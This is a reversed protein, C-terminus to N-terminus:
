INTTSGTQRNTRRRQEDITRATVNEIVSTDGEVIVEVTPNTSANVEVQGRDTVQAAPVVREGEHLRAMGGEAILGGSQLLNGEGPIGGGPLSRGNGININIHKGPDLSELMDIIASRIGDAIANGLDTALDAIVQAGENIWQIVGDIGDKVLDILMKAFDLQFNFITSAVDTTFDAVFEAGPGTIWDITADLGDKLIQIVDFSFDGFEFLMDELNGLAAGFDGQILNMVAKAGNALSDILLDALESTLDVSTEIIPVVVGDVADWADKLATGASDAYGSLANLTEASESLVPGFHKSITDAVQNILPSIIEEFAFRIVPLVMTEIFNVFGTLAGRVANAYQEFERRNDTFIRVISEMGPAFSQAITQGTDEFAGGLAGVDDAVPEVFEAFDSLGGSGGFDFIDGLSQEGQAVENLGIIAEQVGNLTEGTTEGWSEVDGGLGLIDKISDLFLSITEGTEALVTQLRNNFGSEFGQIFPQIYQSNLGGLTSAVTDRFEFLLAIVAGIPGVLAVFSGVLVAKIVRANEKVVAIADALGNIFATIAPLVMELVTTGFTNTPGILNIVADVLDLFQDGLTRLTNVSTQIISQWNTALWNGFDRVTPLAERGLDMFFATMQPLVRFAVEGADRLADTFPQLDGLAAGINRILAPLADIADGILPIFQQGISSATQQLQEQAPELALALGELATEAEESSEAVQQGYALFGTGIVAGFGGAVATTAAVLGVLSSTLPVITTALTGVGAIMGALQTTNFGMVSVSLASISGTLAVTARNLSSAKRETRGFEDGLENIRNQLTQVSASSTQSTASLKTLEGRSDEMGEEFDRTNASVRVTLSDGGIGFAM